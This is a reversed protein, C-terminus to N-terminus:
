ACKALRKIARRRIAPDKIGAILMEAEIAFYWLDLVKM